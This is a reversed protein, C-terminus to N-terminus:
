MWILYREALATLGLPDSADGPVPIKQFGNRSTM